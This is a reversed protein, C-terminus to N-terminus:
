VAYMLYLRVFLSRAIPFSFSLPSLGARAWQAGVSVKEEYVADQLVTEGGVFDLVKEM